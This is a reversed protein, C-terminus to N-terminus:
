SRQLRELEGPALACGPRTLLAYVTKGHEHPTHWRHGHGILQDVILLGRRREGMLDPVAPAPFGPWPDRVAVLIWRAEAQVSVVIRPPVGVPLAYGRPRHVVANTALESVVLRGTYATEPDAADLLDRAYARARAVSEPACELECWPPVVPHGTPPTLTAPLDQM